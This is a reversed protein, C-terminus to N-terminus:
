VVFQFALVIFSTLPKPIVQASHNALASSSSVAFGKVSQFAILLVVSSFFAAFGFTGQCTRNLLRIPNM